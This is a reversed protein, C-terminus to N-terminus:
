ATGTVRMSSVTLIAWLGLLVFRCLGGHFEVANFIQIDVSFDHQGADVQVHRHFVTDDGIGGADFFDTGVMLAM